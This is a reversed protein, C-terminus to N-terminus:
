EDLIKRQEPTLDKFASIASELILIKEIRRKLEDSTLSKLVDIPSRKAFAILRDNLRSKDVCEFETNIELLKDVVRPLNSELSTMLEERVSKSTGSTFGTMYSDRLRIYQRFNIHIETEHWDPSAIGLYKNLQEEQQAWPTNEQPIIKIKTELSKDSGLTFEERDNSFEGLPNM